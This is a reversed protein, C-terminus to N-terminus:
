VAQLYTWRQVNRIRHLGFWSPNPALISVHLQTDVSTPSPLGGAHPEDLKYLMSDWAFITHDPTQKLIELQLRYFAKSGEGYLMPM